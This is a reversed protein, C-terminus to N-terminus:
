PPELPVAAADGRDDVVAGQELVGLGDAGCPRRGGVDGLVGLGLVGRDAHL